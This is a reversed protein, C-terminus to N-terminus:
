VARAGGAPPRRPRAWAPHPPPLAALPHRQAHRRTHATLAPPQRLLGIRAAQTRRTAHNKPVSHSPRRGERTLRRGPPLAAMGARLTQELNTAAALAPSRETSPLGSRTEGDFSFVRVQNGERLGAIRQITERMQEVQEDPISPSSDALVVVAMKTEFTTLRPEALAFVILMFVLAKLLVGAVRYTRRWEWASWLVPIILFWLIWPSAFTM